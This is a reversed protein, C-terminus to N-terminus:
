REIGDGGGSSLPLGNRHPLRTTRVVSWRSDKGGNSANASTAYPTVDHNQAQMLLRDEIPKKM